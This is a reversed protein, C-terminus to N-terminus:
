ASLDSIVLKEMKNGIEGPVQLEDSEYDDDFSGEHLQENATEEAVLIEYEESAYKDWDSPEPGDSDIDKQVAFPDRQEHDLYKELNFFTDFFIHAMRCRKLDSLTIKGSSEPKVLDFMQCLLDQFPLPEIGMREMRECQEEYFYELEFMSLVGDGDVDMCRFWYEVSTLNKKDEESILFWVFEAYSMRGERQVANGRTVAGSFLREIIRNSSAHDNYRALDKPDIYLDHDTDLEWFKCYIVYFHEYSFYDTIQNIDDEEELLALTQLFNSRRLELMTIRGTWSRNVVYFIRQIVTTIYRSHFEPADKLFTLGPHTDVIDQLLPIFDEQELYNCGPKAMMSIFRSADDHCNHLLKRWTAIFTHVSVFGTREGGAAYFMPAKWYLPCGCAKAIKGMEYIDAKEEEFETFANEITAIAADHNVVPGPAPLGRPYYFRPINIAPPPPPPTVIVPAPPPSPSRLTAPAPTASAPTPAPPPTGPKKEPKSQVRIVEPTQQILLTSGTDRAAAAPDSLVIAADRTIAIAPIADSVPPVPAAAPESAASQASTPLSAPAPSVPPPLSESETEATWAESLKDSTEITAESLVASVADTTPEALEPEAVCAGQCAVPTPPAAPTPAPTHKLPIAPATTSLGSPAAPATPTHTSQLPTEPRGATAMTDQLLRMVERQKGSSREASGTSGAGSEVLEQAFSEISELIRLLLAGDEEEGVVADSNGGQSHNGGQSTVSSSGNLALHSTPNQGQFQAVKPQTPAESSTNGERKRTKAPLPPETNRPHSMSQSLNELDMLLKDIDDNRHPTAKPASSSLLASSLWTSSYDTSSLQNCSPTQHTYSQSLHGHQNLVTENKNQSTTMSTIGKVPTHTQHSIQDQEKGVDAEEEEIYLAEMPSAPPTHTYPPTPSTRLPSPSHTPSTSSSSSSYTISTPSLTNQTASPLHTHQLGNTLPAVRFQSSQLPKSFDSKISPSPPSSVPSPTPSTPRPVATPIPPSHVVDEYRPPQENGFIPSYPGQQISHLSNVLEILDSGPTGQSSGGGGALGGFGELELPLRKLYSSLRTMVARYVSDPSAGGDEPGGGAKRRICQKIIDTCKKLDESCKVLIDLCARIDEGGGGSGAELRTKELLRAILNEEGLTSRYLSAVTNLSQDLSGSSLNSLNGTSGGGVKAIASLTGKMKTEDLGTGKGLGFPPLNEDIPTSTGNATGNSPISSSFHGYIIELDTSRRSFSDPRVKRGKRFTVHSSTSLRLKDFSFEKLKGSALNIAEETIDKLSGASSLTGASGAVTPTKKARWPPSDEGVSLNGSSGARELCVGNYTTDMSVSIKGHNSQQASSINRHHTPTRNPDTYILDPAVLLESCTSRHAVTCDLGQSVAGCPGSCYHVAHTHARRDVVVSNYCSVSSVVVRYAAAM